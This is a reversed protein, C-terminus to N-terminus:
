SYYYVSRTNKEFLEQFLVVAKDFENNRYYQIALQENTQTQDQSYVTLTAVSFLLLFFIKNPLAMRGQNLSDM